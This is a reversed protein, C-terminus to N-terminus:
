DLTVWLRCNHDLEAVESHGGGDVFGAEWAGDAVVEKLVDEGGGRSLRAHAPDALIGPMRVVVGARPRWLGSASEDGVVEQVALAWWVRVSVM